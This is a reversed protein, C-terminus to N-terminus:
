GTLCVGVRLALSPHAGGRQRKPNTHFSAPHHLQFLTAFQMENCQMANCENCKMARGMASGAICHLSDAMRATAGATVGSSLPRADAEQM